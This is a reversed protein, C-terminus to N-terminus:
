AAAGAAPALVRTLAAALAIGLLQRRYALSMLHDRNPTLLQQAAEVADDIKTDRTVPLRLPTAGVGGLAVTVASGDLAAGAAVSVKGHRRYDRQEFAWHWGAAAVPVEVATLLEEM